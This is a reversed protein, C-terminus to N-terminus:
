CCVLWEVHSALIHAVSLATLSIREEPMPTVAHVEGVSGTRGMKVVVVLTYHVLGLAHAMYIEFFTCDAVANFGLIYIEVM